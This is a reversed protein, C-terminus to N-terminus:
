YMFGRRAGIPQCSLSNDTNEMPLAEPTRAIGREGKRGCLLNIIPAFFRKFGSESATEQRKVRDMCIEWTQYFGPIQMAMLEVCREFRILQVADKNDRKGKLVQIDAKQNAIREKLIEIERAHQASISAITRDKESGQYELNAVQKKLGRSKGFYHMTTCFFLVCFVILGIAILIVM